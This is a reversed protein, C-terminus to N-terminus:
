NGSPLTATYSAITAQAGLVTTYSYSGTPYAVINVPSKDVLSGENPYNTLLFKGYIQIPSGGNGSESEQNYQGNLSSHMKELKYAPADCQVILGDETKQLVYGKLIVANKAMQIRQTKLDSNAKEEASAKAEVKAQDARIKAREEDVSAYSQLAAKSDDERKQTAAKAQAPDYNFRKQLDPPLDALAVTGIGGDYTIHVRDVEVKGVTVNHFTKGNM